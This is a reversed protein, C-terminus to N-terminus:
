LKIYMTCPLCSTQCLMNSSLVIDCWYEVLLKTNSLLSYGMRSKLINRTVCLVIHFPTFLTNLPRNGYLDVTQLKSSGKKTRGEFTKHCTLPILSFFLFNHFLISIVVGLVPAASNWRATPKRTLLNSLCKWLISSTVHVHMYLWLTIFVHLRQYMLDPLSLYKSSSLRSTIDSHRYSFTKERRPPPNCKFVLTPYFRDRLYVFQGCKCRYHRM